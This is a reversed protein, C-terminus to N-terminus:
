RVLAATWFEKELNVSQYFNKSLDEFRSNAFRKNYVKDVQESFANAAKQFGDGGYLAIWEQYPNHNLNVNDNQLLSRGIEAYGLIAPALVTYIDLIDGMVAKDLIYRTYAITTPEESTALMSESSLGWRECFRVHLPMEHNILMDLLGTVYCIDSLDDAKYIALSWARVLHKLFLYDQKLYFRFSELPLKGSALQKIFKHQTYSCWETYCSSRLQEFYKSTM